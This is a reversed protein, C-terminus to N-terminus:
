GEVLAGDFISGTDHGMVLMTKTAVLILRRAPALLPAYRFQYTFSGAAAPGSWGMKM